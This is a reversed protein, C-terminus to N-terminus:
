SLVFSSQGNSKRPVTEPGGVVTTRHLIRLGVKACDAQTGASAFHALGLNDTILFDGPQWKMRLGIDDLCAEMERTLEEQLPRSPLMNHQHLQPRPHHTNTTTTTTAETGKGTDPTPQTGSDGDQSEEKAELWGRVFPEGCHFLMTPEQHPRYPHQYVLPHAVAHHRSNSVMWLRDYRERTAPPLSQYFEHLPVFYTDGGQAVSEFYMTQYAFPILQFTGDLHWGSRGVQTCGETEDNSVRFIDPHPSRPHKYFTSELTGLLKSLDVQRQGTLSQQRFLLARYKLVDSKLQGVFSANHLDARSLDIGVAEAGFCQSLPRLTYFALIGSHTM